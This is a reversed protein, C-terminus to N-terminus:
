AAIGVVELDEPSFGSWTQITEQFDDLDDLARSFEQELQRMASHAVRKSSSKLQDYRNQIDRLRADKEEVLLILLEM